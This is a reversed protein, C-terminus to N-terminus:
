LLSQPLPTPYPSSFVPITCDFKLFSFFALLFFSLGRGVRTLSLDGHLCVRSHFQTVLFVRLLHISEKFSQLHTLGITLIFRFPFSAEERCSCQVGELAGVRCHPCLCAPSRSTKAQQQEVDGRVTSQSPFPAVAFWTATPSEMKFSPTLKLHFHPEQTTTPALDLM